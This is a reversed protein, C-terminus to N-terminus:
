ATARALYDALMDGFSQEVALEFGGKTRLVLAKMGFCETFSVADDAFSSSHLDLPCAISMVQEADQGTIDFFTLTDSVRVVSVDAPADDPRLSATLKVEDDLLGRVIWHDLGIYYLAINEKSTLRNPTKPFKPLASGAWKAVASAEGKLDFLASPSQRNITVNYGM